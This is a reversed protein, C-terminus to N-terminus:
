NGHLPSRTLTEFWGLWFSCGSWLCIVVWRNCLSMKEQYDFLIPFTTIVQASGSHWNPPSQKVLKWSGKKKEKKESHFHSCMGIIALSVQIDLLWLMHGNLIIWFHFYLGSVQLMQRVGWSGKMNFLLIWMYKIYPLQKTKSTLM